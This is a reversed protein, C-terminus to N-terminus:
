LAHRLPQFTMERVRFLERVQPTACEQAHARQGFAHLMLKSNQITVECLYEIPGETDITPLDPHFDPAPQGTIWVISPLGICQHLIGLRGEFLRFTRALGVHM